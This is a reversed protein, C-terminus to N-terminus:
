SSLRIALDPLLRLANDRSIRRRTRRDLAPDNDLGDIYRTVGNETNANWDAGLLV